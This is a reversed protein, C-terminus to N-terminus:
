YLLLQAARGCYLLLVVTTCSTCCYYLLLQAARGGSRGTLEERHEASATSTMADSIEAGGGTLRGAQHALRKRAHTSRARLHQENNTSEVVEPRRITMFLHIWKKVSTTQQIFTSIKKM